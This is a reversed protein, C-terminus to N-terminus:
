VFFVKLFGYKQNNNEYTCAANQNMIFASCCVNVTGVEEVAGGSTLVNM